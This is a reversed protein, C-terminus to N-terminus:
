SLFIKIFEEMQPKKWSKYGKFGNLVNYKYRIGVLDKAKTEIEELLKKRTTMNIVIIYYSTIDYLHKQVSM